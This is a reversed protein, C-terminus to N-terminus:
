TVLHKTNGTADIMELKNARGHLRVILYIYRLERVIAHERHIM